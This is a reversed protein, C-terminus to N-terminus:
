TSKRAVDHQVHLCLEQCRWACVGHLACQLAGLSHLARLRYTLRCLLLCANQPLLMCLRHWCAERYEKLCTGRMM